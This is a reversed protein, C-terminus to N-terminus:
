PKLTVVIQPNRGGDVTFNTNTVDRSGDSVSQVAPGLSETFVRYEGPSLILTFQGKSDPFGYSIDSDNGGRVLRIYNLKPLSGGNPAIVRGTVQIAPVQVFINTLGSLGVQIERGPLIVGGAHVEMLYTGPYVNQIAFRGDPDPTASRDPIVSFERNSAVEVILNQIDDLSPFAKPVLIRRLVVRTGLSTGTEFLQPRDGTNMPQGTTSFGTKTPRYVLRVDARVPKGLQDLVTGQVEVGEILDLQLGAVGNPGVALAWSVPYFHRDLLSLAYNGSPVFPFVFSGDNSITPTYPIGQKLSNEKQPYQFPKFYDCCLVLNEVRQGKGAAMDVVRGTLPGGAVVTDPVELIVGTSVQIATAHATDSVGPYYLGPGNMGIRIYYSGPPIKELRYRGASDTLPGSRGAASTPPTLEAPVLSIQVDELPLGTSSRVVGTVVGTQAPKVESLQPEPQVPTATVIAAIANVASALKPTTAASQMVVPATAALPVPPPAFPKANLTRDSQWAGVTVWVVVFLLAAIASQWDNEVIRYGLVRHIRQSLRGGTSSVALEPEATRVRELEMLAQAYMSHDGCIKVALDDCCHERESRIRGSLWWVAPHYFLVSEVGRQILNVLFDHRRIHALEHAFVARLHNEHLGTLASIPILVVPRLWGVAVPTDIRVSALLRVPKTLALREMLENFSQQIDSPVISTGARTLSRLIRWGAILRISCLVVGIFWLLVIWQTWATTTARQTLSSASVTLGDNIFTLLRLTARGTQTYFVFTVLPAALMLLLATISITYRSEASHNALLRLALAAAMAIVAGEWMFHLLSGALRQLLEPTLLADVPLQTM